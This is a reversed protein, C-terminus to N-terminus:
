GRTRPLHPCGGGRPSESYKACVKATSVCGQALVPWRTVMAEMEWGLPLFGLVSHGLAGNSGVQISVGPSPRKTQSMRGM